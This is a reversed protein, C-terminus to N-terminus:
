DISGFYKKHLKKATSDPVQKELYQWNDKLFAKWELSDAREYKRTWEFRLAIYNAYQKNNCKKFVPDLPKIFYSEADEIKGSDALVWSMPLMTNLYHQVYDVGRFGDIDSNEHFYKSASEFSPKKEKYYEINILAEKYKTIPPGYKNVYGYIYNSDAPFEISYCGLRQHAPIGKKQLIQFILRGNNISDNYSPEFDKLYPSLRTENKIYEIYNKQSIFNRNIVLVDKRYNLVNQLYLISYHIYDGDTFLVSSSDCSLLVNKGYELLLNIEEAKELRKKKAFCEGLIERSFKEGKAKAVRQFAPGYDLYREEYIELDSFGCGLCNQMAQNEATKSCSLLLCFIMLFISKKM